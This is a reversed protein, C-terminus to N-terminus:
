GCIANKSVGITTSLLTPSIRAASYLGRAEHHRTGPPSAAGGPHKTVGTSARHFGLGSDLSFPALPAFGKALDLSPRRDGDHGAPQWRGQGLSPCPISRALRMYVPPLEEPDEDSVVPLALDLNDKM